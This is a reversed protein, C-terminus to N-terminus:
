AKQISLKFATHSGTIETCIDESEAADKWGEWRGRGGRDMGNTVGKELKHEVSLCSILLALSNSCM